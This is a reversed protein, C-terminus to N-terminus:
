KGVTEAIDEIEKLYIDNVDSVGELYLDFAENMGDTAEKLKTSDEKKIADLQKDFSKDLATTAKSIKKHADKYKSSPTLRRMQATVSKAQKFKEEFEEKSSDSTYGKEEVTALDEIVTNFEKKLELLNGAYIDEKKADEISVIAHDEDIANSECGVVGTLLMFPLALTLAKRKM